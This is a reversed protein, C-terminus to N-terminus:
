TRHTRRDDERGDAWGAAEDTWAIIRTAEPTDALARDVTATFEEDYIVVLSSQAGERNLVDALAPGAFSTNLLLM